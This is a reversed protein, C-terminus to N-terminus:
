IGASDLEREAQEIAHERQRSTRASVEPQKGNAADTTRARFRDFAELSTYRRGGELYTELLQGRVGRQAWRWCTSVNVDARQALKTLSIKTEHLINM